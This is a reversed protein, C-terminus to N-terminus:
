YKVSQLICYFQVSIHTCLFIYFLVSGFYFQILTLALALSLNERYDLKFTTEICVPDLNLSKPVKIIHTQRSPQPTSQTHVTNHLLPPPPFPLPYQSTISPLPPHLLSTYTYTIHINWETYLTYLHMLCIGWRWTWAVRPINRTGRTGRECYHRTQRRTSGKPMGVCRGDMKYYKRREM